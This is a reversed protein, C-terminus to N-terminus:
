KLLKRGIVECIDNAMLRSVQMTLIRKSRIELTAPLDGADNESYQKILCVIQDNM